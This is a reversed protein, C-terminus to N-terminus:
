YYRAFEYARRYITEESPIYNANNLAKMLDEKLDNYKLGRSAKADILACLSKIHPSVFYPAVEDSLSFSIQENM